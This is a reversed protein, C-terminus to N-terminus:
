NSGLLEHALKSLGVTAKEEIFFLNEIYNVAPKNPDIIYKSVAPSVYDILGAAPYVQLSTGVVIFLEAKMAEKAAVEMMPVAEGFWVIHPRLQSGKECKDGLKLEWGEM